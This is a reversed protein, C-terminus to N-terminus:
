KRFFYQYEIKGLLTKGKDYCKEEIKLGKDDYSYRWNLRDAGGEQVTVMESIRGQEDYNFYYDPVLKQLKDNYRVVDTLRDHDDYYYYVKDKEVGKYVSTEEIVNGRADLAFKVLTTDTRDKLRLMSVPHGQTDYTWYHSETVREKEGTAGSSNRLEAIRAATDYVYDYVTVATTSSDVSRYILGTSVNYYNISVSTGNIPTKAVTKLQSYGNNLDQECSFDETKEGNGEFSILSVRDVKQKRLSQYLDVAKRHEVLDKYYFQASAPIASASLLALCTLIRTRSLITTMTM